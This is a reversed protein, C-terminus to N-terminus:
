GGQNCYCCSRQVKLGLGSSVHGHAAIELCFFGEIANKTLSEGLLHTQAEMIIVTNKSQPYKETIGSSFMISRVLINIQLLEQQKQVHSM